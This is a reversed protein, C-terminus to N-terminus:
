EDGAAPEFRELATIEALDHDLSGKYAESGCISGYIWNSGASGIDGNTSSEGDLMSYASILLGEVGRKNAISPEDLQGLAQKDLYDKNCCYTIIAICLISLVLKINKM